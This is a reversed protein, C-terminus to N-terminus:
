LAISNRLPSRMASLATTRSLMGDHRNAPGVEGSTDEIEFPLVALTQLSAPEAHVEGSLASVATAAIIAAAIRYLLAVSIRGWM